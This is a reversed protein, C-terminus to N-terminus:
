PLFRADVVQGYAPAKRIVKRKQLWQGIDSVAEEDPAHLDPFVPMPYKDKLAEPLRVYKVMIKRQADPASKILKSAEEVAKLFKKVEEPYKKIFTGAFVLVTQSAGLGSDDALLVAGKSLAATVLPEPLTAAEVQGSMLMQMRIGINKTEVSAVKDLPVGGNTLLKETVYDIVTNSSVAVPVGALDAVTKYKGGARGLVGFMRRDKRTDYNTAVVSVDRGNGRLIISTVLDAFCGEVSGVSLAIDKEAATNFTILDVNVGAKTFLGKEKAVYLPLAQLVPLSGFKILSTSGESAEVSGFAAALFMSLVVFASMFRGHLV